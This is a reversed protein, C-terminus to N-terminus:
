TATRSLRVHSNDAKKFRKRIHRCQSFFLYIGLMYVIGMLVPVALAYYNYWYMHHGPNVMLFDAFWCIAFSYVFNLGILMIMAIIIFIHRQDFKKRLIRIFEIVIALISIVFLLPNILSYLSFIRKVKKNASKQNNKLTKNNYNNLYPHKTILAAHKIVEKEELDGKIGGAKYGELVISKFYGQYAYTFVNEIEDWSKGGVSSLLQIKDEKKLKGTEFANELETNVKKFLKEMEKENTWTDTDHLATRLVWTLFDGIIPHDSPFWPTNLIEYELEPYKKLTPSVDFAKEIADSPAWINFTRNKSKIKYVNAVFKGLEGSNRTETYPVGFYKQNIAIYASNTVAFMSLPICICILQTIFPKWAKQKIIHYLLVCLEIIMVFLLCAMLWIGDEKIFYTFSFLGGLLISLVIHQFRKKENKLFSYIFYIFLCFIICILPAMITNRYLKTGMRYDFAMPLFLIYLYALFGFIRRKSIKRVVIALGIAAIIWLISVLTIFNFPSKRVINLFVPYGLYKVLSLYDPNKFHGILGAYRIFLADDHIMHSEFHIGLQNSLQIRLVAFFLFFIIEAGYRKIWRRLKMM